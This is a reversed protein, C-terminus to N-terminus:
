LNEDSIKGQFYSLPPKLRQMNHLITLTLSFEMVDFLVLKDQSSCVM